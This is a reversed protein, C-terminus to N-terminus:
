RNIYLYGSRTNGRTGNAYKIVYFYVGAPLQEGKQLTARGESIGSFVNSANDYGTTEFVIVGWRNFIQVVNNPFSEINTISFFDNVGDNDASIITNGIEIDCMADSPPTGGMSDCPNLPDTEDNVEQGDDITDGDTDSNNPDTGLDIEEQYTLGDGDCDSNESPTGGNSDCEDLPNTNDLLEQGDGIGDRDTDFVYPDTGLVTEEGNTLQDSDCDAAAWISNTEDFGTYGPSQVPDCPDNLNTGNAVEQADNIGDGDTDIDAPVSYPDTGNIFEDGNTVGDGDCDAAAWIANTSDYGTYGAAQTPSC